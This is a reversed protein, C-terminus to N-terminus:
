HRHLPCRLHHLRDRGRPANEGAFVRLESGVLGPEASAADAEGDLSIALTLHAGAEAVADISAAVTAGQEGSM